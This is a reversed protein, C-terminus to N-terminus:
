GAFREDVTVAFLITGILGALGALLFPLAPSIKWL